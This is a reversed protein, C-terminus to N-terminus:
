RLIFKRVEKGEKSSIDLIYTGQSLNTLDLQITRLDTSTQHALKGSLAYIKIQFPASWEDNVRLNIWGDAPNPYLLLESFAAADASFSDIWEKLAEIYVEDIRNRALPPMRNETLSADRIWIESTEHSGPQVILNGQNSAPSQTPFNIMNQLELPLTYRYDLTVMPVGGLRHCSSCNSDLYSRIRVELDISEDNIPHSKLYSEPNGIDHRFVNHQNLFALQNMTEGTEPYFLDGNLQHTKVGLVYNANDTHCTLCQSRSPYEWTQTFALQGDEFIEFDKSTRGGQLFAETGEDNWKYTLGYGKGNKGMIFFRTELKVIEGNPDTTIPLDFHKIFVSGEPFDWEELAKFNIQEEPTDFAGNNPIAMWRKKLARDSWLPSNTRYPIIGPSTTLNEMDTFVGLTSLMAPPEPIDAKQILRFIKGEAAFNEGMVTILIQGDPMTNIGTIGPSEPIEVPQGGLNPLLVEMEPMSLGNVDTLTMLKDSNYDAFLYKGNLEPFQTGKYVSGGIICSTFSREFEYYPPQEEGIIEDPKEHDDSPRTGEMYPWQMNKGKSIINIEERKNSGTDSLWIKETDADYFMGYPSRLGIAYYEELHNGDPSLWPNDNPISYGQSYTNGWGAPPTDNAIPQRIIPHSRSPDNDVDIRFIGSFFGGDLRQNSDVQYEDVGEDGLSIYLFEDPGFFMAGGNHWTSRDFQQFLIEESDEDFTETQADWKFKSLRNLGLESWVDADPKTRYFIFIEQKDPATSDGFKPHLAIGVTGSEGKKFARDKIDLILQREQTEISVRWVEGLRCLLLIDTSNPFPIIRLPDLFTENPMPDELEWTGGPSSEPFIGNFYPGIAEPPLTPAFFVIGIFGLLFTISKLM